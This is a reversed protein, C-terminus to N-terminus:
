PFTIILKLLLAVTICPCHLLLQRSPSYDFLFTLNYFQSIFLISFVEISSIMLAHFLFESWRIHIFALTHKLWCFIWHRSTSIASLRPGLEPLGNQIISSFFWSLNMFILLYKPTNSYPINQFNFAWLEPIMKIIGISEISFFMCAFYKTWKM